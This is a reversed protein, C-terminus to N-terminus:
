YVKVVPLVFAFMVVLTVHNLAWATQITNGITYIFVHWQTFTNLKLHCILLKM